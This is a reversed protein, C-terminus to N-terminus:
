GHRDDVSGDTGSLRQNLAAVEDVWRLREAHEMGMVEQYSWHLHWAVYAVEEHLRDSPYGTMGGACRPGGRLRRRLPPLHGPAARRRPRQDPQYLDQLYALDAAFFSEVMRPNLDAIGGLRTIVRSLLIIVLYGPNAQVRPDKLPAIEDFATALRM